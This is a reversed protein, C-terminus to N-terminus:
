EDSDDEETSEDALPSDETQFEEEEPELKKMLLDIVQEHRPDAEEESYKIITEDGLIKDLEKPMEKVTFFDEGEIICYVQTKYDEESSLVIVKDDLLLLRIDEPIDLLLERIENLEDSTIFSIKSSDPETFIEADVEDESPETPVEAVLEDLFNEDEKLTLKLKNM